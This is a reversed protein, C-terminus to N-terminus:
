RHQHLGHRHEGPRLGRGRSARRPSADDCRVLLPSIFTPHDADAGTLQVHEPDGFVLPGASELAKLSRRVEERQELSALAGM